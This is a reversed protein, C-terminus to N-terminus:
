SRTLSAMPASRGSPKSTWMTTFVAPPSRWMSTHFVRASCSRDVPLPDLRGDVRHQLRDADRLRWWGVVVVFEGEDVQLDRRSGEGAAVWGMGSWRVLLLHGVSVPAPWASRGSGRRRRRDGTPANAVRRGGTDHPRRAAAPAGRGTRRPTSRRTRAPRRDRRRRRPPRPHRPESSTSSRTPSSGPTAPQATSCPWSAGAPSALRTTPVTRM